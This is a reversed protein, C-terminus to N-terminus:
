RTSKNLRRYYADIWERYTVPMAGGGEARFVRQAHKPLEGWRQGKDGAVPTRESKGAKIPPTLREGNESESKAAVRDAKGPELASDADPLTPTSEETQKQEGLQDM